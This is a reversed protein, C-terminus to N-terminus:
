HSINKKRAAWFCISSASNERENERERERAGEENESESESERGKRADRKRIERARARASERDREVERSRVEIERREKRERHRNYVRTRPGDANRPSVGGSGCREVAGALGLECFVSPPTTPSTSSERPGLTESQRSGPQQRPPPAHACRAHTPRLPPPAVHHSFAPRRSSLRPSPIM